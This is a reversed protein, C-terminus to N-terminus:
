KKTKYHEENIKNLDEASTPKSKNDGAEFRRGDKTNELGTGRKAKMIQSAAMFLMNTDLKSDFVIKKKGLIESLVKKGDETKAFAKLVKSRADKGEAKFGPVLIEIRAADGTKKKPEEEEEDESEEADEDGSLDEEEDESEEEDEDGSKGKLLKAIAAECAKMREMMEGMDPEDESEEKDEKEDKPKSMSEVKEGLDKVAKVLEDYGGEDESEEEDEMDEDAAKAKLKAKTKKADLEAAQDITKGIGGLAKKLDEFVKKMSMDGRHDNIAYSSGARGEEVLACHNGVINYQRGEGDGTQEYECEYGCSVKRMGNNILGIAMEDTVLIDAILPEEGDEDLEEGKRVNQLSGYTLEKWNDPKVFDGDPHRITFSKGQFSAITKPNFVEEPARYIWITGDSGTELPTEGEGYQQWGTRAIPVSLCLLFGEPTKRINESLRTPTLFKAM